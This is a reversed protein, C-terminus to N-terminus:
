RDNAPREFDYNGTMHVTIAGTMNSSIRADAVFKASGAQLTADTAKRAISLPDLGALGGGGSCGGVLAIVALAAGSWAMRRVRGSAM